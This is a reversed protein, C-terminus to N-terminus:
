ILGLWHVGNNRQKQAPIQDIFDRIFVPLYISSFHKRILCLQKLKKLVVQKNVLRNQKWEVREVNLIRNQLWFHFKTEINLLM